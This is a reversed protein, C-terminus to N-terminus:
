NEVGQVRLFLHGPGIPVTAMRPQYGDAASGDNAPVVSAPTWDNDLTSSQLLNYAAGSTREKWRIILDSGSKETTTLSGDPEVPSTGFLFEQLNSFGDGDADDGRGRLNPDTIQTAWTDYASSAPNITAITTSGTHGSGDDVTLTLDSGSVTPTVSVGTLVGDTFTGSTGSFGGTGGFTVTGTFSTATANSADQATITIGAIPTGVTQPSAIPSIAFHDVPGPGPLTGMPVLTFDRVTIGKGSRNFVLTNTGESLDIEFPESTDWLGTTYPLPMRVSEAGNVEVTLADGPRPTVVRCHLAYSRSAPVEITYTFPTGMSYRGCHLQVGGLNSEMFRLAVHARMENSRALNIEPLQAAAAPITIVGDPDVVVTRDAESVEYEPYDIYGGHWSAAAFDEDSAAAEAKLEEVVEYQRILSLAYWPGMTPDMTPSSGKGGSGFLGLNWTEGMLAGIWQAREVQPFGEESKRAETMALFNLNHTRRVFDRMWARNGWNGGLRTQWGNPTWYALTAHGPEPRPMAPIGFSRLIFRGFYARRGCVGGNALINQYRHRDARDLHLDGSGYSVESNVSVVYRGHELDREILDPRFSRLMERGWVLIENPVDQNVVKTLEWTSLGEFAPDLEGALFWAEYSLYREIPDVFAPENLTTVTDEQSMPGVQSMPDLSEPEVPDEPDGEPDEIIGEEPMPVAFVLSVAVAMRQFVGESARPSAQQIADYIEMAAHYRRGAPGYASVMQVMLDTDSFLQMLLDAHWPSQQAFQNLANPTAESLIKYAALNHDLQSSALLDRLQLADLTQGVDAVIQLFAAHANEYAAKASAENAKSQEYQDQATQLQGPAADLDRTRNAIQGEYHAILDSKREDDDPLGMAWALREEWAAIIVPLVTLNDEAVKVDIGTIRRQNTRWSGEATRFQLAAVRLTEAAELAAVEHSADIAPVSWTIHNKLLELMDAFDDSGNWTVKSAPTTFSAMDSWGAGKPNTAYVRYYHTQGAALGTLDTSFPEDQVIPGISVVHDWAHIDDAPDPASEGWVFYAEAIGGVTMEGHLRATFPGVHTAGPHTLVPQVVPPRTIFSANKAWIDDNGITDEAHFTFYYQTDGVLNTAEWSLAVEAPYAFTGIVQSVATDDAEWAAADANNNGSVYATVTFVSETANITANLDARTDTIDTASLAYINTVDTLVYRVIVIGSGGDSGPQSNNGGGGGSGTHATGPTSQIFNNAGNGGIGSGGFGIAADARGGGGGGAAYWTPTGSIDFQMGPGGDTGANSSTDVGPGGAGGGGSGGGENTGAGGAHGFGGSSSGPQLAQGPTGNRKGSGSGGDNGRNNAAPGGGGGLAEIAGFLSNAGNAGRAHSNVGAEGGGAGGGGVVVAVPVSDSVSLHAHVLGGAGGAGAGANSFGQTSGGGGGGGVVLVEIELDTNPQFTGDETFVHMVFNTGNQVYHTISGGSAAVSSPTGGTTFCWATPDSIGAFQREKRPSGDDVSEIATADILVYHATGVALADTPNITVTAHDFTLCGSTEVDFSEVLMGDGLSTYLSISGTGAQVPRDFTLSLGDFVGVDVANNEPETALLLPIRPNILSNIANLWVTQGLATLNMSNNGGSAHGSFYLREGGSAHLAGAAWRGISARGDVDYGAIRTGGSKFAGSVARASTFLNQELPLTVGTWMPDSAVYVTPRLSTNNVSNATWNWDDIIYNSMSLLPAPFANWIAGNKGDNSGHSNDHIILSAGNLMAVEAPDTPDMAGIFGTVTYGANTLIAGWDAPVVGDRAKTVWVITLEAAVPASDAGNAPSLAVIVPPDTEASASSIALTACGIAAFFHRLTPYLQNKM